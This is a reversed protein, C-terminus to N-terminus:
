AWSGHRNFGLEIFLRESAVNGDTITAGVEAVGADALSRLCKRVLANGVGSRKRASAVVIPDIVASKVNDANNLQDQEVGSEKARKKLATVELGVLEAQLEAEAPPAGEEMLM